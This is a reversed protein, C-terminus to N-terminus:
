QKPAKKSPKSEAVKPNKGEPDIVYGESDLNGWSVDLGLTKRNAKVQALFAQHKAIFTADGVAEIAGCPYKDFHAFLDLVSVGQIMDGGAQYATKVVDLIDLGLEIGLMFLDQFSGRSAGFSIAEHLIPNIDTTTRGAGNVQRFMCVPSVISSFGLQQSESFGKRPNVYGLDAKFGLALGDISPSLAAKNIYAIGSGIQRYVNGTIFYGNYILM